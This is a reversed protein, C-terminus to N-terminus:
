LQFSQVIFDLTESQRFYNTHHVRDQKGYDYINSIVERPNSCLYLMSDSDVILDNSDSFLIDAAAKTARNKFETVFKWVALGSSSPEFSGVIAFYEPRSLQTINLRELELNARTMASLGPILSVGADVVPTKALAGTGTAAFRLLSSIVSLFPIVPTALGTAVSLARAVNTLWSLAARLNKPTALSTGDLPCGVLVARRGTAASEMAELWWRAVLGGRSHAVVDIPSRCGRFHRAIEVANFVPSISVTPHNFAYIAKYRGKLKKLFPGFNAAAALEAILSESNSFTGHLLVLVPGGPDVPTGPAIPDHLTTGDWLRLGQKPTWALDRSRLFSTVENGLPLPDVQVREIIEGRASGTMVRGRKVGTSHLGYGEEWILVGDVDALTYTTTAAKPRLGRRRLGDLAPLPTATDLTRVGDVDAIASRLSQRLQAADFTRVIPSNTTM